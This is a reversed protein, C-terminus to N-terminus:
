QSVAMAIWTDTAAKARCWYLQPTADIVMRGIFTFVNVIWGKMSFSQQDRILDIELQDM